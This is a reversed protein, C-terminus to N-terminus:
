WSSAVSKAAMWEGMPRARGCEPCSTVAFRAACHPCAAQTAFTDFQNGCQTCKWQEGVPPAAGCEPCVWLTGSPLTVRVHVEGAAERLDVDEITWPDRLGLLAAYLTRTDTM